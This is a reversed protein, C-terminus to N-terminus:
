TRRRWQIRWLIEPTLMDHAAAPWSQRLGRMQSAYFMLADRKAGVAEARRASGIRRLLFGACALGHRRRDAAGPQQRYLAEEYLYWHRQPRATILGLGARHVREHDAHFLGMPLAISMAPHADITEELVPGIEEAAAVAAAATTYQSDVFSLWQASAGLSRVAREDEERRVAMWPDNQDFGCRRDWETLPQRRPADGAYVTVVLSGPHRYLLEGCSLVADDLHPSVVIFRAAGM